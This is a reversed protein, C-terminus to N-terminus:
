ADRRILAWGGVLLATVAYGCLLAFVAGSPLTDPVPRVSTLANVMPHPLFNQGANQLSPTVFLLPLVFLVGVLACIAGATHRIVAGIGLGILAILAPYAGAVLVAGLVGPEGLTARPAPARLAWQGALFAVFATMEGATLTVSGLVAAKAALVLPRRPAAAFTARIMGSSFEATVALVGLTGTLLQGLVLGIFCDHTPDFSARDAASMQAYGEHSMVVVSLGVMSVAFFAVIYWTSRVTRLKRWEMAAVTRFGYGGDRVARRSFATPTM